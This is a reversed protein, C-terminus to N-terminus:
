SNTPSREEPKYRDVYHAYGRGLLVLRQWSSSRELVLCHSISRSSCYLQTNVESRGLLLSSKPLSSWDGVPLFCRVPGASYNFRVFLPRACLSWSTATAKKRANGTYAKAGGIPNSPVIQPSAGPECCSITKQFTAMSTIITPIRRNCFTGPARGTAAPGTTRPISRPM